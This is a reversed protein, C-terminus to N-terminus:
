LNEVNLWWAIFFNVQKWSYGDRRKVVGVVIPDHRVNKSVLGIEDFIKLRMAAATASLIHPHAITVPFEVDMFDSQAWMKIEKGQNDRTDFKEVMPANSVYKGVGIAPSETQIDPVSYSYRGTKGPPAKRITRVEFVEVPFDPVILYGAQSAARIKEYFKIRSTMRGVASRLTVTRWGHKKAITLNENLERIEKRLSSLKKDCFDVITKRSAELEEPTMAVVITRSVDPVTIEQSMTEAM